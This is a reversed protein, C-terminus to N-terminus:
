ESLDSQYEYELLDSMTSLEEEFGESDFADNNLKSRLESHNMIASPADNENVKIM